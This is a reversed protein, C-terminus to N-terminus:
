PGNVEWGYGDVASPPRGDRVATRPEQFGGRALLVLALGLVGLPPSFAFGWTDDLLLVMTGSNNVARLRPM